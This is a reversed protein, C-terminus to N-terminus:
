VIVLSRLAAVIMPDAVRRVPLSRRAARDLRHGLVLTAGPFTAAWVSVKGRVRSPWVVVIPQVLRARPGLFSTFAKHAMAVTQKRHHPCSTLGRRTTQGHSWYFGPEWCKSDILLVKDGAVVVHDINISMGPIPVRVDYLVTVDTRKALDALVSQTMKEGLGGARITGANAAWSARGSLSTGARGIVEGM